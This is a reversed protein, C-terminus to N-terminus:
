IRRKRPLVVRQDKPAHQSELAKTSPALQDEKTAHPLVGEVNQKKPAPTRHKKLPNLPAKRPCEFSRHGLHQCNYCIIRARSKECEFKNHSTQRYYRCWTHMNN